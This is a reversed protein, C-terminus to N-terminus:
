GLLSRRSWAVASIERSKLMQREKAALSKAQEAADSCSHAEALLLRRRRSILPVSGLWFSCANCGFFLSEVDWGGDRRVGLTMLTAVRQAEGFMTSAFNGLSYAVLAKRPPGHTSIRAGEPLMALAEQERASAGNYGNVALVECPQVVHPHHGIIIDFGEAVLARAVEAQVRTPMPEFEHGWHVTAVKLSCGRRELERVGNRLPELDVADCSGGERSERALGETVCLSSGEEDEPFNCGWCSAAVGLNIGDGVELVTVEQRSCGVPQMGSSVLCECTRLLGKEGCDLAHNNAVCAAIAAEGGGAHLGLPQVLKKPARFRVRDPMYADFGPQFEEDPVLPVEINCILAGGHRLASQFGESLWEDWSDRLWMVDGAMSVKRSSSEGKAGILARLCRRQASAYGDSFAADSSAGSPSRYWKGLYKLFRWVGSPTGVDIGEMRADAM